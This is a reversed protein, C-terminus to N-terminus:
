FQKRKATIAQESRLGPQLKKPEDEAILIQM